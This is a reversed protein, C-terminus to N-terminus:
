PTSRLLARSETLPVFDAKNKGGRLSRKTLLARTSLNAIIATCGGEMRARRGVLDSGGM